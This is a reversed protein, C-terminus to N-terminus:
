WAVTGYNDKQDGSASRKNLNIDRTSRSPSSTNLEPIEVEKGVTVKGNLEAGNEVSIGKAFIKGYIKGAQSIHLHGNSLVDGNVYGDITIDAGSLNGGIEGHSGIIIKEQSVLDGTVHGDVRISHESKMNGSIVSGNRIQTIYTSPNQVNENKRSM